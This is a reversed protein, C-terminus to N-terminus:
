VYYFFFLCSGRIRPLMTIIITGCLFGLWAGRSLTFMLAIFLVFLLLLLVPKLFKRKLNSSFCICAVIPIVIVLYTSLYNYDSLFSSIRIHHQFYQFIGYSGVVASAIILISLLKKVQPITKVNHVVLYYILVYTVFEGRMENLSYYPDFGIVGSIFIAIGFLLLPLWIATKDFEFKKALISRVIWFIFGGIYAFAQLAATHSFSLGVVLALLCWGIAIDLWRIIKIPM